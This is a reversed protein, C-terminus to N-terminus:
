KMVLRSIFVLIMMFAIILQVIGFVVLYVKKVKLGEFLLQTGAATMGVAILEINVSNNIFYELLFLVMGVVLAVFSGFLNSRISEKNEYEKGRSKEKQAALLIDEDKM